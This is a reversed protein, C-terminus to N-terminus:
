ADLMPRLTTNKSVGNSCSTSLGQLAACPRIGHDFFQGFLTFWSNFPASLGVDPAIAPLHVNDGQMAIGFPLVAADRVVRAADLAVVTVNHAATAAVWADIAAQEAPGPLTLPDGDGLLDAARKANQMVVRAQYEADFAPKFTQFIATVAPLDLMPNVSGARALATLIAAPNALTQDVLLNSITRLSSDFVLSSSVNSPAYSTPVPPSGPPLFGPPVNEAPRFVPNVLAPFQNGAAGWTEQGPLLHNYTGDVTRLGASINYTPVLGGPGFLPQGAAHAESIKIQALIFELDSKIYTVM